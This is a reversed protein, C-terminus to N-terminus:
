AGLVAVCLLESPPVRGRGSTSRDPHSAQGRAKEPGARDDLQCQHRQSTDPGNSVPQPVQLAIAAQDLQVGQGVAVQVHQRQCPQVRSDHEHEQCVDHADGFRDIEAGPTSRGIALHSFDLPSYAGPLTTGQLTPHWPAPALTGGAPCLPEADREKRVCCTCDKQRLFM